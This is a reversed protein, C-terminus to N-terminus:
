RTGEARKTDLVIKITRIMEAADLLLEKVEQDSLRGVFGTASILSLSSQRYKEVEEGIEERAELITVYARGLLRVREADAVDGVKNAARILEAIFASLPAM